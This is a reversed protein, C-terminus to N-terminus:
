KFLELKILRRLVKTFFNSKSSYLKSDIIRNSEPLVLQKIDSFNEYFYINKNQNKWETGAKEGRWSIKQYISSPSPLLAKSIVFNQMIKYQFSEKSYYLVESNMNLEDLYKSNALCSIPNIHPSFDFINKSCAEFFNLINKYSGGFYFDAIQYMYNEFFIGPVVIKKPNELIFEKLKQINIEQDTRVRIVFDVNELKVLGLKCGTYQNLNNNVNMISSMEKSWSSPVKLKPLEPVDSKSFQYIEVNNKSKIYESLKKSIKEDKWTSIIIREFLNGYNEINSIITEDCQHSIIENENTEAKKKYSSVGRGISLLPGQIILGFKM